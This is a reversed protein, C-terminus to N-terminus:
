PHTCPQLGPVQVGGAGLSGGAALGCCVACVARRNRVKFDDGDKTRNRTASSRAHALLAQGVAREMCGQLRRRADQAEALLQQQLQMRARQMDEELRSAEELIRVEQPAPPTTPQWLALPGLEPPVSPPLLLRGPSVSVLAASGPCTSTVLQAGM